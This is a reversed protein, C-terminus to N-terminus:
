KEKKPADTFIDMILEWLQLGPLGEMRLAGDLAIIEAESSSLSVAKQRKCVRNHLLVAHSQRRRGLPKRFNKVALVPYQLRNGTELEREQDSANDDSAPWITAGLTQTTTPNM